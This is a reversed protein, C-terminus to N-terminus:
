PQEEPPSPPALPVRWTHDCFMCQRRWYGPIGGGWVGIEVTDGDGDVYTRIPNSVAPVEDLSHSGLLGCSPCLVMPDLPPIEPAPDLETTPEQVATVAARHRAHAIPGFAMVVIGLLVLVATLWLHLDSM